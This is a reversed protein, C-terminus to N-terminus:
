NELRSLTSFLKYENKEAYDELTKVLLSRKPSSKVVAYYNNAEALPTVKIDDSMTVLGQEIFYRVPKEYTLMYDSRKKEFVRAVSISNPLDIFEFGESAYRDRNGIYDFGRIASIVRQPKDTLREYLNVKLVGYAPEIFTVNNSLASTSKVNIILDIDGNEILKYIRIASACTVDLEIYYEELIHRTIDISRGVCQNTKYDIESSPPFIIAGM